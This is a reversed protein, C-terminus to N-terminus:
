VRSPSARPCARARARAPKCRGRSESAMAAGRPGERGRARDAHAPGGIRDSDVSESRHVRIPPDSDACGHAPRPPRPRRGAGPPQATRPSPPRPLSRVTRAHTRAHTRTQARQRAASRRLLAGRVDPSRRPRQAPRRRDSRGWAPVSGVRRVEEDGCRTIAPANAHNTHAHTDRTDSKVRRTEADGSRSAASGYAAANRAHTHAHTRAHTSTHAHANTLIHNQWPPSPPPPCPFSAKLLM